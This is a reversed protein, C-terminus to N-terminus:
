QDAEEQKDSNSEAKRQGKVPYFGFIAFFEQFPYYTEDDPEEKMGCANEADLNIEM